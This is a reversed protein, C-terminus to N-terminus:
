RAPDQQADRLLKEQRWDMPPMADEPAEIGLKRWKAHEYAGQQVQGFEFECGECADLKRTLELFRASDNDAKGTALEVIEADTLHEHGDRAPVPGFAGDSSVPVQSLFQLEHEDLYGFGCAPCGDGATGELSANCNTCHIM